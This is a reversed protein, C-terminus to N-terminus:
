KASNAEFTMRLLEATSDAGLKVLIDSRRNAVTRMSVDLERAIAKNSHGQVVLDLVRRELDTLRGFRIDLDRRRERETHKAADDALAKRIIEWLDDEAYPRDLVALAGAQMARVTTATRAYATLLIVPTDFRRQVLQEQLELGSMGPMRLDTVVCGPRREQYEALFEEASAFSQSPMGMSKVLACVSNRAQEDDDVVFVTPELTM